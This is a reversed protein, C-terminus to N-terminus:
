VMTAAEVRGKQYIIFRNKGDLFMDICLVVGAQDAINGLDAFSIFKMKWRLTRQLEKSLEEMLLSVDEPNTFAIVLGEISM